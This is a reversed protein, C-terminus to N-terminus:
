PALQWMITNGRIRVTAIRQNPSESPDSSFLLQGGEDEISIRLQNITDHLQHVEDGSKKRHAHDLNEFLSEFEAFSPAPDFRASFWPINVEMNSAIGVLKDNIFVRLTQTTTPEQQRWKIEADRIDVMTILRVSPRNPISSYHVQGQEDLIEVVLRRIERAMRRLDNLREDRYARERSEFLEKFELFAPLPEFHAWTWPMDLTLGSAFGVLTKNIWVSYRIASM